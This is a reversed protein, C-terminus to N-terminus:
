YNFIYLIYCEKYKNYLLTEAEPNGTLRPFKNATYDLCKKLLHLTLPNNEVQQALNFTSEGSKWLSIIIYWEISLKNMYNPYIVYPENNLNYVM